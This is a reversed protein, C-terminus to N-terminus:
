STAHRRNGVQKVRERSRTESRETDNIAGNQLAMETTDDAPFILEVKLEALRSDQPARFRTVMSTFNLRLDAKNYCFKIAPNSSVEMAPLSHVKQEVKKYLDLYRNDNYYMLDNRLDLYASWLVEHSNRMCNMWEDNLLCQEILNDGKNSGDFLASATDNWDVLDWWRNFAFAPYPEHNQLMQDVARYFPKLVGSKQKKECCTPKLGAALILQDRAVKPVDLYGALQLVTPKTPRSRGTELFSINRSSMNLEAALRMQSIGKLNRWFRLQEGFTQM